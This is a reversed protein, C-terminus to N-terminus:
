LILLSLPPVTRSELYLYGSSGAFDLVLSSVVLYSADLCIV